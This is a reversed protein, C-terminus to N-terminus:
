DATDRRREKRPKGEDAAVDMPGLKAPTYPRMQRADSLADARQDIETATATRAAGAKRGSRTM